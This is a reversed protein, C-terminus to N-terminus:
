RNILSALAFNVKNIKLKSQAEDAMEANFGQFLKERQYSELRQCNKSDVFDRLRM